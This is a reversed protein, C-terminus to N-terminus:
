GGPGTSSPTVNSASAGAGAGSSARLAAPPSGGSAAVAGTSSGPPSSTAAGTATSPSGTNPGASLGAGDGGPGVTATIASALLAQAGPVAAAPRDPVRVDVYAAGRASADALVSAAAAWKAGLRTGDGFYLSAGSRLLATLGKTGLYVRAVRARLAPPAAAALALVTLLRRDTVRPGMPATSAKVAPVLGTDTVGRLVTSDAALALRQGGASLLAVPLREIVEIALGHPFHAHTHIAAVVGYRAVARRLGGEDVDLTHMSRASRVLTTRIASAQPGSVGAVTVSGVTTLGSDRVALGALVLGAVVVVGVLLRGPGIAGLVAGAPALPGPRPTGRRRAVVPRHRRPLRVRPM